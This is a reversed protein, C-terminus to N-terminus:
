ILGQRLAYAVAHSRNRLGFRHTVDQLVKKVMRESYSLQRAIERTDCGESVLRLIAQERVSLGTLTLGRPALVQAHVQQVQRLLRGLLDPALVGDGAAAARVAAALEAPSVAARRLLGVAGAEIATAVDTEDLETAVLVVQAGERRVSRTLRVARDDVADACVLVVGAAGLSAPEVLVIGPEARLQAELGAQTVPDGALVAVKIDPAAATRGDAPTAALAAGRRVAEHERAARHSAIQHVMGNM